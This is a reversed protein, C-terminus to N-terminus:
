SVETQDQQVLFFCRGIRIPHYHIESDRGDVAHIRGLIFKRKTQDHLLRFFARLRFHQHLEIIHSLFFHEVKKALLLTAARLTLNRGIELEHETRLLILLDRFINYSPDDLTCPHGTWLSHIWDPEMRASSFTPPSTLITTSM